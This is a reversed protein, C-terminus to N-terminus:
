FSMIEVQFNASGLYNSQLTLKIDNVAEALWPAPCLYLAQKYAKSINYLAKIYKHLRILDPM